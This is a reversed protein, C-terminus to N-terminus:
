NRWKKWWRKSVKLSETIWPRSISILVQMQHLMPLTPVRSYILPTIMLTLLLQFILKLHQRIFYRVPSPHYAYLILTSLKELLFHFNVWAKGIGAAWIAVGNGSQQAIHSNLFIRVDDLAKKLPPTSTSTSQSPATSWSYPNIDLVVALFDPQTNLRPLSSNSTSNSGQRPNSGYKDMKDTM